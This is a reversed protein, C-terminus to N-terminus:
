TAAFYEEPKVTEKEYPRNEQRNSPVKETAVEFLSHVQAERKAGESRRELEVSNKRISDHFDPINSYGLKHLGQNVGQMLCPIWESISGRSPVMGSVGEPVRIASNETGYRISSGKEMAKLSGMGRYEKLRIGDKIQSFGPAEDTCALLSGLMVTSAGLALAKVIDSSKTIGGDAIVPIGAKSCARACEFVATAQGRGIGGVEQTTCISGSGMGVRIADAGADILAECAEKTVVNGGIVQLHPYKKKTWRILDIEYRTFGQSTDFVIVDAINKLLDIREEAKVAWTEV